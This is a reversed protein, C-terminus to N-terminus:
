ENTFEEWKYFGHGSVEEYLQSMIRITAQYKREHAGEDTDPITDYYGPLGLGHDYRIAMSHLLGDPPTKPLKTRPHSEVLSRIRELFEPKIYKYAGISEDKITPHKAIFWEGCDHCYTKGSPYSM